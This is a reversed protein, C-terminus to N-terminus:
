RTPNKVLNMRAEYTEGDRVYTLNIREGVGLTYVQERLDLMTKIAQGEAKVIVDGKRLGAAYAPGAEDVNLLYVGEPIDPQGEYFTAIKQDYAYIGIYPTEFSGEDVFHKVIPKAINIPIAFGIGEAETVKLTNIGIVEGRMNILPGGSNGPNISADTQILNELFSEGDDTEMMLTRNKASVIGQTVTHQFQLTLPTGIAIVTEGIRLDDINGLPLVTLEGTTKIIALDLVPDSWLLQAPAHTGDYFVVTLGETDKIVHHNTLIYGQEDVIVGSGIGQMPPEGEKASAIVSAVGVVGPSCDEALTTINEEQQKQEIRVPQPAISQPSEETTKPAGCACLSALMLSVPALLWKKM